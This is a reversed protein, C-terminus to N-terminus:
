SGKEKALEVYMYGIIAAFIANTFLDTADFASITDFSTNSTNNVTYGILPFFSPSFLASFSILVLAIVFILLVRLAIRLLDKDPRLVCEIAKLFSKQEEISIIIALLVVGLLVLRLFLSSTIIALSVLIFFIILGLCM